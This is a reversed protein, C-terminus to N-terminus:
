RIVNCRQVKRAKKLQKKLKDIDIQQNYLKTTLIELQKNTDQMFQVMKGIIEQPNNTDM